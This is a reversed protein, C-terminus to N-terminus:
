RVYIKWNETKIEYSDEKLLALVAPRATKAKIIKEM